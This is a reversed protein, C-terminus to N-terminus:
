RDVGGSEWEAARGRADELREIWEDVTDPRGISLCKVEGYETVLHLHVTEGEVTYALQGGCSEAIDVHDNVDFFV